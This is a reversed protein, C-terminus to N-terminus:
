VSRLTALSRAKYAGPILRDYALLTRADFNTRIFERCDRDDFVHFHFDRNNSVNSNWVTHMQKRFGKRM